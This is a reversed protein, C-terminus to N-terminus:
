SSSSSTGGGAYSVSKGLLPSVVVSPLTNAPASWVCFYVSLCPGLHIRAEGVGLQVEHHVQAPLRQAPRHDEEPHQQQQAKDLHPQQVLPRPLGGGRPLQLPGPRLRQLLDAGPHPRVPYPPLVLVLLLLLSTLLSSRPLHLFHLIPPHGGLNPCPQRHFAVNQLSM